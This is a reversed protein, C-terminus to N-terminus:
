SNSQSVGSDSWTGTKSFKEFFCTSSAFAELTKVAGYNRRLREAVDTTRIPTECDFM